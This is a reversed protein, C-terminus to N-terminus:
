LYCAGLAYSFIESESLGDKIDKQSKSLKFFRMKKHECSMIIMNIGFPLLELDSTLSFDLWNSWIKRQGFKLTGRSSEGVLPIPPPHGM